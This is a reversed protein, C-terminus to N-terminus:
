SYTERKKELNESLIWIDSAIKSQIHAMSSHEKISSILLLVFFHCLDLSIKVLNRHKEMTQKTYYDNDISTLEM